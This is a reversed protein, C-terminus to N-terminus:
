FSRESIMKEIREVGMVLASKVESLSDSLNDSEPSYQAMVLEFLGSILSNLSNGHYSQTIWNEKGPDGMLRQIAINKTDVRKIRYNNLENQNESTNKTNMM